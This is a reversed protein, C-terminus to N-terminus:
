PSVRPAHAAESLTFLRGLMGRGARLAGRLSGSISSVGHRRPSTELRVEVVREGGLLARVNQEVNVGYGTDVIRGEPWAALRLARYPGLDIFWRGFRLAILATTLTNGLRQWTTLRSSRGRAGCVLAVREDRLPALLTHVQGPGAHNDADCVVAVEVSRARLAALGALVAHGYGRRPEAVYVVHAGSARLSECLEATGDGMSSDVVVVSAAGAALWSPVLTALNQAEGRAPVIVGFHPLMEITGDAYAPSRSTDRAPERPRERRTRARVVLLLAVAFPALVAWRTLERHEVFPQGAIADAYTTYLAAGSAATWAVIPAGVAAPLVAAAPLLAWSLYWYHVTPSLLLLGLLALAAGREFRPEVLRACVLWTGLALTVWVHPSGPLHARVAMFVPANFAFDRAFAGLPAGLGTAPVVAFGALVVLVFGAVARLPRRAVVWPLLLVPFVKALAALGLLAGATAPRGRALALGVGALPLLALADIHGSGASLVVLPCWAYVLALGAGNQTGDRASLPSGLARRWALLLLVVGLDLALVSDRLAGERGGLAVVAMFFLQALPPYISRYSPHNIHAHGEDVLHVLEPADPALTYPDLGALLVRAEWVYRHLDDSLFGSGVFPARVLAAVVLVVLATGRGTDSRPGRSSACCATLWALVAVALCPAAPAGLAAGFAAAVLV